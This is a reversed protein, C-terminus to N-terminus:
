NDQGKLQSDLDLTKQFGITGGRRVGGGLQWLTQPGHWTVLISGVCPHAMARVHTRMRQDTLASTRQASKMQITPKQVPHIWFGCPAWRQSVSVCPSSLSNNDGFLGASSAKWGVIKLLAM